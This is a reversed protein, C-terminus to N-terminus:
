CMQPNVPAYSFIFNPSLTSGCRKVEIVITVSDCLSIQYIIMLLASIIVWNMSINKVAWDSAQKWDPQIDFAHWVWHLVDSPSDYCPWRLQLRNRLHSGRVKRSQNGHQAEGGAMSHVGIDSPNSQLDIREGCEQNIWLREPTIVTGLVVILRPSVHSPHALGISLSSHVSEKLHSSYALIHAASLACLWTQWDVSHVGSGMWLSSSSHSVQYDVQGIILLCRHRPM